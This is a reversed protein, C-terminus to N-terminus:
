ASRPLSTDPPPGLVSKMPRGKSGIGRRSATASSIVFNSAIQMRQPLGATCVWLSTADSSNITTPAPPMYSARQRRQKSGNRANCFISSSFTVAGGFARAAVLLGSQGDSRAPSCGDPRALFGYERLPCFAIFYTGALSQHVDALNEHQYSRKSNARISCVDITIARRHKRITGAQM